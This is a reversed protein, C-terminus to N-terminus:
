PAAPEAAEAADDGRAGRDPRDDDAKDAKDAKEDEAPADPDPLKVIVAVKRRARAEWEELADSMKNEFIRQELDPRAEEFPTIGRDGEGRTVVRLLYMVGNAIVPEAYGGVETGFAAKALPPSLEDAAFARDALAGAVGLDDWRDRVDAWPLEGARVGALDARARSVLEPWATAADPLRHGAADVTVVEPAEVSAALRRYADRLEDEGITVRSRLIVDNFRMERIQARLEARYDEWALGSREVEARLAARDPFRNDRVIQDIAADVEAPGVDQDLARLTQEQLTRRILADLVEREMRMRCDPASGAACAEDIFEAGLAYVDSLTIVEGDVVAAVRDIVREDARATTAAVLATALLARWGPAPGM